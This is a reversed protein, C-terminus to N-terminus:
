TRSGKGILLSTQESRTALRTYGGVCSRLQAAAAQDRAGLMGFQCIVVYMM